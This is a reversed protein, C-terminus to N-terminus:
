KLHLCKYFPYYNTNSKSIFSFNKIEELDANYAAISYNSNSALFLCIIFQQETQFCSLGSESSKANFKNITINKILTDKSEFDKISKFLHKQIVYQSNANIFGLIYYYNTDNSILPIFAHHYSSINSTSNTLNELNKKYIIKNEFDYIEALSVMRSWSMLYEKKSTTNGSEKIALTETEFKERVPRTENIEISYFYSGNLLPRGNKKFGYFIRTKKDLNSGRFSSTLFVMDGNSYSAFNVYRFNEREISIINNLIKTSNIDTESSCCVTNEKSALFESIYIIIQFFSFYFLISTFPSNIM